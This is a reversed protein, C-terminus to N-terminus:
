IGHQLLPSVAAGSSIFPRTSFSSNSWPSLSIHFLMECKYKVTCSRKLSVTIKIKIKMSLSIFGIINQHYSYIVDKAGFNDIRMDIQIDKEPSNLM